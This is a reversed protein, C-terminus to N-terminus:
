RAPASRRSSRRASCKGPTAPTASWARSTAHRELDILLDHQDRAGRAQDRQAFAEARVRLGLEVDLAVGFDLKGFDGWLLQCCPGARLRRLCCKDIVLLLILRVVGRDLLEFALKLVQQVHLDNRAVYEGIEDEARVVDDDR